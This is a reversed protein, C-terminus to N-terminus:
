TSPKGQEEEADAVSFRSIKFETHILRRPFEAELFESFRYVVDAESWIWPGPYAAPDDAVRGQHLYGGSRAWETLFASFSRQVGDRISALESAM